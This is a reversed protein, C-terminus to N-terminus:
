ICIFSSIRGVRGDGVCRFWLKSIRGPFVGDYGAGNLYGVEFM